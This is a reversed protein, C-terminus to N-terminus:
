DTADDETKDGPRPSLKWMLWGFGVVLHLVIVIIGITAGIGM